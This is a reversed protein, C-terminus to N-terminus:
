PCSALPESSWFHELRLEEGPPVVIFEHADSWQGRVLKSLLRLSGPLEEYRLGTLEAVERAHPRFADLDYAGTDILAVRRYHKIMEAMIWRATEEGYKPLCRRYEQLPDSGTEVWGKTLYYTGPAEYFQRLYEERSGLLLGICDDIRPIVLPCDRARLGVVGNSCQGYGVVIADYGTSRDIEAQIEGCMDSPVRHLRHRLFVADDLLGDGALLEDRITECGILKLRV